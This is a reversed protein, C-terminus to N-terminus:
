VRLEGALLRRYTEPTLSQYGTGQRIYLPGPVRDPDVGLRALDRKKVKQSETLPLESVLRLFRPRQHGPLSLVSAEFAGLQFESRTSVVALPPQGDIGPIRVGVVVVQDVGPSMSLVKEVALSSVNEGKFRFSDGLRDVFWYNGSEDRTLLDGSRCYVDGTRFLNSAIRSGQAGDGLYGLYDGTRRDARPRLRLWLEGPQNAACELARGEADRILEGTESDVRLLRYGRARALPIQGVSGVRGTLNVIAGPFETAAYFERIEPISFREQFRNWIEASLGNGVAVRISHARDGAAEPLALLARPLEGIYLLVTARCSRVDDWFTSASFRHRLALAAGTALCAGLGLLLGSAHHLPLACYVVDDPHLRHVLRGFITAAAFARRHTIRAAKMPGTTGSTYIYVFDQDGSHLGIRDQDPSKSAMGLEREFTDGGHHLTEFRHSRASSESEVLVLQPELSELMQDLFPQRLQSGLLAVRVGIRGAGLVLALGNLSNAGSLAVVQGSRLGRGLLWAAAKMVREQLERYALTRDTLVLAPREPHLRARITLLDSFSETGRIRACLVGPVVRGLLAPLRSLEAKRQAVWDALVERHKSDTEAHSM